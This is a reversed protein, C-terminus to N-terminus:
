MVDSPPVELWASANNEASSVDEDPDKLSVVSDDAKAEAEGGGGGGGVAVASLESLLEVAEVVSVDEVLAVALVVSVVAVVTVALM